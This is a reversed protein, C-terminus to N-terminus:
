AVPLCAAVYTRVRACMWAAFSFFFLFQTLRFLFFVFATRLACLVHIRISRSYWITTTTHDLHRKASTTQATRVLAHACVCRCVCMHGNFSVSWTHLLYSSRVFTPSRSPLLCVTLRHKRTHSTNHQKDAAARWRLTYAHAGTVYTHTHAACVNQM